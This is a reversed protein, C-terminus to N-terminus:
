SSYLVTLTEQDLEDPFRPWSSPGGRRNIVRWRLAGRAHEQLKFFAITSKPNTAQPGLAEKASWAPDDSYLRQSRASKAIVDPISPRIVEFLNFPNFFM